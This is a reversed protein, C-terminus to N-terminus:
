PVLGAANQGPFLIAAILQIKLAPAAAFPGHGFHFDDCVAFADDIGHGPNEDGHVPFCLGKLGEKIRLQLIM